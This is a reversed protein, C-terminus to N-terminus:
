RSSAPGVLPSPAAQREDSSTQMRQQADTGVRARFYTRAIEEHVEIIHMQLGDILDHLALPDLDAPATHDVFTLAKGLVEM